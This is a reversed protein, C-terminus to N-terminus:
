ATLKTVILGDIPRGTAGRLKVLTGISPSTRGHRLNRVTAGTLGLRAALKEDSPEGLAQRAEDLVAPDLVHRLGVDFAAMNLANTM